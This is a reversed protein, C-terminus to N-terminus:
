HVPSTKQLANVSTCLSEVICINFECMEAATKVKKSSLIPNIIMLITKTKMCTNALNTNYRALFILDIISETQSDEERATQIWLLFLDILEFSTSLRANSMTLNVLFTLRVWRVVVLWGRFLVHDIM